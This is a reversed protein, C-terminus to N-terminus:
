KIIEIIFYNRKEPYISHSYEVVTNNTTYGTSKILSVASNKQVELLKASKEDCLMAEIERRVRHLIINNEELVEYLSYTEFDYNIIYPVLDFPLYVETLLVPLEDKQKDSIAYRLRKLYIVNDNENIMLKHAIFKSARIVSMEIVITKPYFGKKTMESNYSEIFRTSEQLIKQKTVFSGKGRIRVLLSQNVLNSMAQRVTPRSVNFMVALETEPLICDGEKLEGTEIMKKIYDEVLTYRLM